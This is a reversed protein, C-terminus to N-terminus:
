LKFKKIYKAKARAAAAIVGGTDVHQATNGGFRCARNKSESIFIAMKM